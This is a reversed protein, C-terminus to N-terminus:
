RGHVSFRAMHSTQGDIARLTYTGNAAASANVILTRGNVELPMRMTRGLADTILISAGPRLAAPLEIRTFDTTPNPWTTLTAHLEPCDVVSINLQTTDPDCELLDFVMYVYIGQADTAPDFSGSFANGDPGTWSGGVDPTGQLLDFLETVPDASCRLIDGGIGADPSSLVCPDICDIEVVEIYATDADCDPGGSVTYGFTGGQGIMSDYFGDFLPLGPTATDFWSGGALPSGGLLPFLVTVSGDNCVQVTADAGAVGACPDFCESVFFQAGALDLSACINGGGQILLAHVDNLTSQGLVIATQFPFTALDYIFTHITYTGTADVTFLPANFLQSIVADDGQTLLYLTIYGAPEVADDNALAMLMAFGNDLCVEPQDPTLTGADAECDTPCEIVSISVTSSTPTGNQGAVTYVYAGSLNASPLFFGNNAEGVPDTWSGGPCPDGNLLDFLNFPADTFCVTTEADSGADCCNQVVIVLTALDDACPPTGSVLYTYVGPADVDPDFTGSFPTGNPGTWSGNTSPNGGLEALCNIPEGSDCVVVQASAGADPANILSVSVLATDGACEDSAGVVYAYTGAADIAPEIVGSFVLGAPNTWTGGLDGNLLTALSLAAQSSCISVSADPGANADCPGPCEILSIVLQTTDGPCDPGDTVLYVYVGQADTAPNFTGSFALGDPSFWSGGEDPADTLLSFLETAPDNFCLIRDGGVGAYEECPPACDIVSFAAGVVDLSGCLTGGGQLLQDFLFSINTSGLSVTLPNLTAPDFVLTHIVYDGLLPWEFDSNPEVNEIIGNARALVYVVSYGAPVVADGNPTSVLHAIGDVRCVESEVATLTGAFAECPPTCDIVTIPAGALDLSGCVSGGGQQLEADIEAINTTGLQVTFPNLTFPDYVLTHIVYAGLLPWEFDSNPEVNEIIGNARALIYAVSYGDPVVADGAPVADLHAIGDVRCVEPDTATITGAFADCVPACDAVQFQAGQVDLSGCISGGGQLLLAAVNGGTTEGPVVGSLDLTAPDYVLTHITFLGTAAVPFSPEASTALIVLDQGTTLVHIVSYGDPVTANGDPAAELQAAGDVLCLDPNLASITGADATCADQCEVTKAGGGSMDLSACVAGGGQVLINQLTYAHTTGFVVDSLDLTAPDYVLTHIRWVDVTTVTFSPVTSVQDLILGNTRSLFYLTTFGDPVEANGLPTATLTASSSVLCHPGYVM